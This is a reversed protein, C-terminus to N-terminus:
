VKVIPKFGGWIMRKGDFPMKKPQMLKQLKPDAMMKKMIRLSDAKTKYIVWSFMVTENRKLKVARPFSTWKGKELKGDAVCETTGVAGNKKAAKAWTSAVKKYAAIRSKPVPVLFGQVYM